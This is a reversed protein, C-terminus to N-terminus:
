LFYKFPNFQLHKFVVIPVFIAVVIAISAFLFYSLQFISIGDKRPVFPKKEAEVTEITIISRRKKVAFIKNQTEAHTERIQELTVVKETKESDSFIEM